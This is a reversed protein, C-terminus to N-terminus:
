DNESRHLKSEIYNQVELKNYRVLGGVKHYPIYNMGVSRQKRLTNPKIKLHEAVWNEDVWNSEDNTVINIEPTNM